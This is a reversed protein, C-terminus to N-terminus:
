FLATRGHGHVCHIYTTGTRLRFFASSLGEPSPVSADLIPLSIYNTSQRIEQPDQFEATLDVYNLIGTPLEKARLRRGLILDDGMKDFPSERSLTQTIYWVVESYILFPFHIIKVWLPITGDPQKCFIKPGIGAYGASLVFFSIALWFLLYWWDGLLVASYCFLAGLLGFTLSYIM